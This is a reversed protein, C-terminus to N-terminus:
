RALGELRLLTLNNDIGWARLEERWAPDSQMARRHARNLSVHFRRTARRSRHKPKSPTYTIVAM